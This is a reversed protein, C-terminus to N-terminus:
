QGETQNELTSVTAGTAAASLLGSQDIEAQLQQDINFKQRATKAANRKILLNRLTPREILAQAVGPILVQPQSLAFLPVVSQGTPSTVAADQARRTQKLAERLMVIAKRQEPPFFKFIQNRLKTSQAQFTNPNITVGDLSSKQLIRQLVRQGAAKRGADDLNSSLFDLDSNKTSFLLQDVIEPTTDGQKILNKVGTKASGVAFESFVKDAQQWKRQLEPSANKAFSQMDQSLNKYLQSLLGTDASGTVPAGRKAKGLNDGVASRISKVSNFNLDDPADIFNQMQGVLTQDALSGKKSEQDLIKQAFQKTKSLGVSGLKSLEGSSQEFLVGAAKKQAGISSKVSEVIKSEFRAADDVDFNTLLKDVAAVREAQQASRQGGEILEGQQQLFKGARSEPPLVDSTLQRIGTTQEVDQVKALAASQEITKPTQRAAQATARRGAGAGVVELLAEPITAAIAALAPSGTANFADDGLFAKLKDLKQVLPQLTEGVNQLPVQGEETRPQFTLFERVREVNRVGIGEEAFPNAAGALGLIGAIPEAVLGTGLSLASEAGGVLSQLFSPKQQDPQQVIEDELPQEAPQQAKAIMRKVTAQIVQPDTGDPFELVRGDALQAQVTM